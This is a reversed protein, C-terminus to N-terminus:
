GMRAPFLWPFSVHLQRRKKITLASCEQGAQDGVTGPLGGQGDGDGNQDPINELQQPFCRGFVGIIGKRPDKLAKPM